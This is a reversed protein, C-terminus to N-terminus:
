EPSTNASNLTPKEGEDSGSRPTVHSGSSSIIQVVDSLMMTIQIDDGDVVVFSYVVLVHLSSNKHNQPPFDGQIKPPFPQPAANPALRRFRQLSQLRRLRFKQAFRGTRRAGVGPRRCSARLGQCTVGACRRRAWGAAGLVESLARARPGRSAALPRLFPEGIVAAFACSLKQDAEFPEGHTARASVM